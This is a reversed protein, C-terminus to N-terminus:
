GAPVGLRPVPLRGGPSRGRRRGAAARARPPPVRQRVRPCTRGRVDAPRRRRRGDPRPRHRQRGAGGPPRRLDVRRRVRAPAGVVLMTWSIRHLGASSVAHEFAIGLLATSLIAGLYRCTQFLGTAVGTQGAPAAAYVAAQLALNNFASPLGFVVGVAVIGVVPTRDGVTTVALLGAVLGACGILMPLRIGNRRVLRAAVPSLGIGLAALPLMLLGADEAGFHRVRQLWLPLAYFVAYFVMQVGIQQILTRL